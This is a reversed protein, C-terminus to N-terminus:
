SIERVIKFRRSISSAIIWWTFRVEISLPIVREKKLLRM